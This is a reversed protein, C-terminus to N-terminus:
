SCWVFLKRTLKPYSSRDFNKNIEYAVDINVTKQHNFSIKDQNLCNGKFKGRRKTDVYNLLWNLINTSASPLKISEDSM